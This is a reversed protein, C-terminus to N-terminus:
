RKSTSDQAKALLIRSVLEDFFIKFIVVYLDLKISFKWGIFHENHHKLIDQHVYVQGDILM